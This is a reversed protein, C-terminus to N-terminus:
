TREEEAALAEKGWVSWGKRPGRAFMELRPAPSLREVLAFFDDPKRSHERRPWDFWTGATAQAYRGGKGFPSGHRSGKRAVLVHETNCRFRGVGLGPKIWTWLIIPEFGWERAVQYGWDVHQAVCWLYLHSQPATNPCLGIIEEISLTEYHRQPSGKPAHANIISMIPTWPPDAVVTRFEGAPPRELTLESM